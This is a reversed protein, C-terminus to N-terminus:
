GQEGIVGAGGFRVSREIKGKKDAENVEISLVQRGGDLGDEKLATELLMGDKLKEPAWKKPIFHYQLLRKLEESGPKPLEDDGFVSIVDDKPALITYEATTDNILSTLDVSHLLSVFSTCNLALLYKEPTLELAGPPLLLSSVTHVVGNSAYIDHEVLDSGSIMVKEPSWVIELENGSITTV